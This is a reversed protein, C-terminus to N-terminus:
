EPNRWRLFTPFRPAEAAGSPQHKFTLTRDVLTDRAEWLDAREEMSWGTGLNFETGDPLLRCRLTGLLQLPFKLAKSSSRKAHGLADTTKPNENTYMCEYGLVVAESDEFRKVKLLSRSRKGSEYGPTGQRVMVGEWGHGVAACEFETFEEVSTVVRCPVVRILGEALERRANKYLWDNLLQHRRLYPDDTMADFIYYSLEDLEGDKKVLSQTRGFPDRTPAYRPLLEGDMAWPPAPLGGVRSALAANRIPKLNRSVLPGAPGWWVARIGDYKPQLVCPYTVDSLDARATHALMPAPTM